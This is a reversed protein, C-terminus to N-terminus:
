TIIHLKDPIYSISFLFGYINLIIKKSDFKMVNKTGGIFRFVLLMYGFIGMHPKKRCSGKFNFGFVLLKQLLASSSYGFNKSVKM